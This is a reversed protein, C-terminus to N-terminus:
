RHLVANEEGITLRTWRKRTREAACPCKGEDVERRVMVSTEDLTAVSDDGAGGTEERSAEHESAAGDGGDRGADGDGGDRGADGDGGDRGADGDGGDRGADFPRYHDVRGVRSTM